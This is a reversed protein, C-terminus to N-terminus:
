LKYAQASECTNVLLTLNVLTVLHETIITCLVANYVEEYKIISLVRIGYNRPCQRSSRECKKGRSNLSSSLM